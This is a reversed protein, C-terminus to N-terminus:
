LTVERPNRANRYARALRHAGHVYARWSSRHWCPNPDPRRPSRFWGFRDVDTTDERRDWREIWHGWQRFPRTVDQRLRLEFRVKQPVWTWPAPPIEVLRTAPADQLGAERHATFEQAERRLVLGRLRHTVAEPPEGARVEVGVIVRKM